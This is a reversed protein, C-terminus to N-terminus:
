RLNVVNSSLQLFCFLVANTGITSSRGSVIMIGAFSVSFNNPGNFREVIYSIRITAKFRKPSDNGVFSSRTTVWEDGNSGELSVSDLVLPGEDDDDDDGGDGAAAIEVSTGLRRFHQEFLPTFFSAQRLCNHSGNM